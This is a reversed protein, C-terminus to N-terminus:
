RAIAMIINVALMCRPIRVDDQRRIHGLVLCCLARWDIHPMSPLYAVVRRQRAWPTTPKPLDGGYFQIGLLTGVAYFVGSMHLGITAVLSKTMDTQTCTHITPRTHTHTHARTRARTHTHTHKSTHAHVYNNTQTRTVKIVLDPENASSSQCLESGMYLM